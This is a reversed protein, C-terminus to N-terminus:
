KQAEIFTLAESVVFTSGTVLVVDNPLSQQMAVQLAEAVSQFGKGSLNLRGTIEVLKSVPLSRHSQAACWYYAANKPLQELVPLVEKDGVMGWVIHWNKVATLHNMQAIIELIGAKNHGVDIIVTPNTYIQDWRGRLGTLTNVNAMGDWIAFNPITFGINQLTKVAALVTRFNYRQYYGKLSASFRVEAQNIPKWIWDPDCYIVEGISQADVLPAMVEYAVKEFVPMSEPQNEGIVCPVHPKIIGAKEFAIQALTNGLLDQHDWSINTIISLLPTIINTSDLRGGLGVEIVAIAVKQDAFWSFALAVTVEFFSPNIKEILSYNNSLFNIVYNEPIECGNIKIRETFRLLHPSTYLGVKFCNTSQLIAALLHSTSGKGNTGAIHITKFKTHPNGLASCLATINGIDTKYAAKGDRSFYPLKNYLYNTVESINQFQM